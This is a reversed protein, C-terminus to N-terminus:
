PEPMVAVSIDTLDEAEAVTVSVLLGKGTYSRIETGAMSAQQDVTFGAGTLAADYAQMASEVSDSTEWLASATGEAQVTAFMLDGGDFLPVEGPWGDPISAGQGASFENGEEDRMTVTEDNIDVDVEGGGASELAQETLREAAEDVPNSCAALGSGVILAVALAIVGRKNM